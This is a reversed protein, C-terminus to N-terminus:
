NAIKHHAPPSTINLASFTYGNRIGWIIIKEVAAVSFYKIDHQLIIATNLGSVGEIVNEVVQETEETEGADGSAVDWDFYQYGLNLLDEALRSMIGPNFDSITNSSGGPFRCINTYSGIQNYIIGQMTNFDAFFADESAYIQYYEHSASHVGIAHGERFARGICYYYNPFSATVFFSAKVNYAALVDLLVDTYPGPGDDFTLYLVRGNQTVTEPNQLPKVSVTRSKSITEGEKNTISYTRQYTGVQYPIVDGEIEVYSSLDNGLADVAAFGPDTFTFDAYVTLDEDGVLSIEPRSVSYDPYRLVSTENGAKDTVTYRFGEGEATRRVQKTIDGDLNDVATYGEEQYGDIWNPHYSDDHKLSIVPATQDRVHVIREARYEKLFFRTSYTRTYEGIRNTDVEGEAAIKLHNQGEPFLRGTLVAYIEPDEYPMGYATEMEMPRVTYFVPHRGDVIAVVTVAFLLYCGLVIAVVRLIKITKSAAKGEEDEEFVQEGTDEWGPDSPEPLIEQWNNELQVREETDKKSDM